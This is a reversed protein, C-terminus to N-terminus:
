TAPWSSSRFVDYFLLYLLSAVAMSIAVPIGVVMLVLFSIILLAM